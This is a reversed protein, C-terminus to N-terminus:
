GGAGAKGRRERACERESQNNHFDISIERVRLFIFDRLGVDWMTVMESRKVLFIRQCLTVRAPEGPEKEESRAGVTGGGGVVVFWVRRVNM